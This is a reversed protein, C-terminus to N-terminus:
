DVFALLFALRLCFGLDLLRCLLLRGFVLPLEVQTLAQYQFQLRSRRTPLRRYSLACRRGRADLYEQPAKLRTGM